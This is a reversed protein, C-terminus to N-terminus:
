TGRRNGFLEIHLRHAYRWGREVCTRTIWALHEPAPRVVGEPMLMVDAPAVGRLRALLAEIEAVDGPERVVFKLQREPHQDILRQLAGLDIRRAEHRERWAGSADRPDDRAPTSNSLKPSLSLLDCALREDAGFGPPVMTGATEITVHMGVDRLARALAPLAPFMLPEGGTIVAFRVGSGRAEDALDRVPRPVGEPNWSAYPTDCWACRLNCGSTRVFYSPVGALKGEGQISTFTEAIPIADANM